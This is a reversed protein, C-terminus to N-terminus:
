GFCISSHNESIGRRHSTTCGGRKMAIRLNPHQQRAITSSRWAETGTPPNSSENFDLKRAASVDQHLGLLLSTYGGQILAAVVILSEGYMNAVLNPISISGGFM